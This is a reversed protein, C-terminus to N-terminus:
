NLFSRLLFFGFFYARIELVRGNSLRYLQLESTKEDNQSLRLCIGAKKNLKLKSKM